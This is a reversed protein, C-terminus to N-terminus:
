RQGKRKKREAALMRKAQYSSIKKKNTREPLEELDKRHMSWYDIDAILSKKSIGTKEGAEWVSFVFESSFLQGKTAARFEELFDYFERINNKNLVSPDEFYPSFQDVDESIKAKMGRVLSLPNALFQSVAVLGQMLDGTKKMAKVTPFGQKIFADIQTSYGTMSNKKLRNIRKQAVRRLESYESAVAERSREHIQMFNYARFQRM